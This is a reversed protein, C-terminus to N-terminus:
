FIKRLFKILPDNQLTKILPDNRFANKFRDKLSLSGNDSLGDLGGESFKRLVDIPEAPETQFITGGSSETKATKLYKELFKRFQNVGSDDIVKWLIQIREPIEPEGIKTQTLYDSKKQGSKRRNYELKIVEQIDYILNWRKPLDKIQILVPLSKIIKNTYNRAMDVLSKDPLLAGLLTSELMLKGMQSFNSTAPDIWASQSSQNIIGENRLIKIIQGSTKPDTVVQAFTDHDSSEFIEAIRKLTEPKMQKAYGIAETMYDRKQTTSENLKNSYASCQDMNVDVIRVLTPSKFKELDSKDLGFSDLMKSLFNTYQDYKGNNELRKLIMSRGNGGLTVGDKTIIPPGTTADPSNNVLHSPKFHSSYSVVKAQEDKTTDYTRTQCKEPYNPNKKFTFPDNSTRIKDLEVIAYKSEITESQTEIKTENGYLIGKSAITKKTQNNKPGSEKKHKQDRYIATLGDHYLSRIEESVQKILDNGPYVETEYRKKCVMGNSRNGNLVFSVYNETMRAWVEDRERWYSSYHKLGKQFRTPSGDDKWYLKKFINEFRARYGKKAIINENIGIATSSGGSLFPSREKNDVRFRIYDAFVNDFAHGFEHALSGNNPHPKTQNIIKGVPEYHAAADGGQGRAGLALSLKRNMGIYSDPVKLAKAILHLAEAAAFLFQQKDDEEMWRGFEISKLNFHKIFVYPNTQVAINFAKNKTYKLLNITRNMWYEQLRGGWVLKGKDIIKVDDALYINKNKEKELM